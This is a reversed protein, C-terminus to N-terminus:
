KGPSAQPAQKAAAGNGPLAAAPLPKGARLTSLIAAVEANGPDAQALRSFIDIAEATKGLRADSLGLLYPASAYGPSLSEIKSFNSAASAYDGKVYQFLGLRFLALPNQPTLNVAFQAASIAEPLSGKSSEVQALLFIADFYDSKVALADGITQIAEDYQKNVAQLRALSLYISPNGPNERIANAYATVATEPGNTMGIATAMEAVRAESIYNYYNDPDASVAALAYGLGQNVVSAASKVVIQSTSATSTSTLTGVLERSLAIAAEARAQWYIDTPNLALAARFSDDAMIPDNDATLEKVGRGFYALAEASRLFVIGWAGAVVMCVVTTATFVRGGPKMVLDLPRLHGYAASAGLWVGTLVFASYLVAHPPVYILAVLWLFAAGFYSSVVIFGACSREPEPAAGGGEPSRLLSRLSWFGLLGFLLLFMAWVAGGFLGQTVIATPLFGFGYNFEVGWADTQNIASPKHDLFAQIFRNPGIGFIPSDNLEGATVDLSLRWPLSFESYGLNLRTIVPGALSVGNWIFISCIIAAALPLWAIRRLISARPGPSRPKGLSLCVALALFAVAAAEWVQVSNIIYALIASLALAVYCLAKQRSALSLLALASIAFIAVVAAYMALAYWSGAVTVTAAQLVGFSAFGPGFVLRLFHFVYLVAFSGVLGAYLIVARGASRAVARYAVLGAVCLLLIFSGTGLEFGQGFFSKAFHGSLASSALTSVALLAGVYIMSKPPLRVEREQFAAVSFLAASILTGVAIVVTKATELAVYQSPWFALPALIVTALLVYFAASELRASRSAPSPM